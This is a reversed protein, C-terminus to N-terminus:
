VLSTLGYKRMEFITFLCLRLAILKKHTIKDVPAQVLKLDKIQEAVYILQDAAFNFLDEELIHNIKQKKNCISHLLHKLTLPTESPDCYVIDFEGIRARIFYELINGLVMVIKHQKLMNSFIQESNKELQTVLKDKMETINYLCQEYVFKDCDPAIIISNIFEQLNNYENIVSESLQSM